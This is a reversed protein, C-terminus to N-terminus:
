FMMYWVHSRAWGCYSVKTGGTPLAEDAVNSSKEVDDEGQEGDLGTGLHPAKQLM